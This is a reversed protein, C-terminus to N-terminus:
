LLAAEDKDSLRERAEKSIEQSQLYPLTKYETVNSCEKGGM